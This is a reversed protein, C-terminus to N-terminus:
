GRAPVSPNTALRVVAPAIQEAVAAFYAQDTVRKGIEAPVFPVTDVALVDDWEAAVLKIVRNLRHVWPRAILAAPHLGAPVPMCTLVLATHDEVRLDRIMQHLETRWSSLRLREMGEAFSPCWVAVHFTHTGIPGLSGATRQLTVHQMARNELVVGRGTREAVLRALPGDFAHARTHVGYGIALGGGLVLVRIPDRGIELTRPGVHSDPRMLPPHGLADLVRMAYRHVGTRLRVATLLPDLVGRGHAAEDLAEVM